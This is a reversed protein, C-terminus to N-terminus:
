ALLAYVCQVCMTGLASASESRGVSGQQVKQVHASSPGVSTRVSSVPVVHLTFTQSPGPTARRRRQQAHRIVALATESMASLADKRSLGFLGAIAAADLPSRLELATQAGSTLLVGRGRTLRLLNATNTILSQRAVSDRIAAAFDVEFVLGARLVHEVNETRLAFPLRGQSLDLQVIDVASSDAAHRLSALDGPRIAVIDYSALVANSLSVDSAHRTSELGVTIRSLQVQVRTVASM